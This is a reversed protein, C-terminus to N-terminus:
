GEVMCKLAANGEERRRRIGKSFHTQAPARISTNETLKILYTKFKNKYINARQGFGAERQRSCYRLDVLGTQLRTFCRSLKASSLLDPEPDNSMEPLVLAGRPLITKSINPETMHLDFVIQQKLFM